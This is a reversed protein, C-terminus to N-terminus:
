NSPVRGVFRKLTESFNDAALNGQGLGVTNYRNVEPTALATFGSVGSM